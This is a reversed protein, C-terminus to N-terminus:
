RTEVEPLSDVKYDVVPANFQREADARCEDSCEHPQYMYELTLQPTQRANSIAKFFEPSVDVATLRPLKQLYVPATNNAHQRVVLMKGPEAIALEDALRATRSFVSDEGFSVDPYPHNRWYSKWYCQSSGSAFYPPGGPIKYLQGTAEEYIISANYGTVSKGTKMLRQVQDQLRHPSSFDDDDLSAIIDGTAAEAGINRKTGTPTREDLHIHRIRDDAPYSLRETGDDVIILEIVSPYTQQMFCRIATPVYKSRNWTPMVLSVKPHSM